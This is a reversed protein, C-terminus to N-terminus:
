TSVYYLAGTPLNSFRLHYLLLTTPMGQGGQNFYPKQFDHPVIGIEGGGERAGPEWPGAYITSGYHKSLSM